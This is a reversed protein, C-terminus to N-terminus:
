TLDMVLEERQNYWLASSQANNPGSAACGAVAEASLVRGDFNHRTIQLTARIPSVITKVNIEGCHCIDSDITLPHCM